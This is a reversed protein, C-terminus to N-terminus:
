AGWPGQDSRYGSLPCYLGVEVLIGLYSFCFLCNGVKVLGISWWVTMPRLVCFLYIGDFFASFENTM